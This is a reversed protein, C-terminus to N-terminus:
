PWDVLATFLPYCTAALVPAGIALGIRRGRLLRRGPLVWSWVLLAGAGALVAGCLVVALTYSEEFRAFEAADCTTCTLQALLAMGALVATVPLLVLTGILPAVWAHPDPWDHPGTVRRVTAPATAPAPHHAPHHAPM